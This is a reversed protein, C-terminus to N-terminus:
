KGSNRIKPITNNVDTLFVYIFMMTVAALGATEVFLGRSYTVAAVGMIASIGYLMLTARRQGYGLSM